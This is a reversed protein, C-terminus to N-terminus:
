RCSLSCELLSPIVSPRKIGKNQKDEACVEAQRGEKAKLSFLFLSFPDTEKTTQLIECREM